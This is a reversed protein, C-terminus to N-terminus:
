GCPACLWSSRRAAGTMSWRASMSMREWSEFFTDAHLARVPVGCPTMWVLSRSTQPPGATACALASCSCVRRFLSCPQNMPLFYGGAPWCLVARCLGRACSLVFFPGPTGPGKKCDTRPQRGGSSAAPAASRASTRARLPTRPGQLEQLKATDPNEQASEDLFEIISHLPAQLEESAAAEIPRLRNALRIMGAKDAAPRRDRASPRSGPAPKRPPTKRPRSCGAAGLLAGAAILVTLTKKM